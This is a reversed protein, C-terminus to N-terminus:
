GPPSKPLSSILRDDLWLLLPDTSLELLVVEARKAAVLIDEPTILVNCWSPIVDASYM